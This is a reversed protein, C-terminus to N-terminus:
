PQRCSSGVVLEHGARTGVCPVAHTACALPSFSYTYIINHTNKYTYINMYIYIFINISRTFSHERRTKEGRDLYIRAMGEFRTSTRRRRRRVHLNRERRHMIIIINDNYNNIISNRFVTMTTM